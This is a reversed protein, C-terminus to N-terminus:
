RSQRQGGSAGTDGAERREARAPEAPAAAAEEGHGRRRHGAEREAAPQAAARLLLRADRDSEGRPRTGEVDKSRLDDQHAGVLRGNAVGGRTPALLRAVTSISRLM